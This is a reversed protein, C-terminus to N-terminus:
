LRRDSPRTLLRQALTRNAGYRGDDRRASPVPGPLSM